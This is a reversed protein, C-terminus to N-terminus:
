NESPPDAIYIFLLTRDNGAHKETSNRPGPGAVAAAIPIGM